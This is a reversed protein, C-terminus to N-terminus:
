SAWATAAASRSAPRARAAGSGTWCRRTTTTQWSCSALITAARAGHEIALALQAEIRQSGLALVVHDVPAPLDALSPLCALGEIADYKPNIPYIEGDFGGRRLQVILQNGVSTSTPSAGVVAISRPALLPALRHANVVASRDGRHIAAALPPPHYVIGRVGPWGIKAPGAM